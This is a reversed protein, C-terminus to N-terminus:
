LRAQNHKQIIRSIDEKIRGISTSSDYRKVLRGRTDILFKEFNGQIPGSRELWEQLNKHSDIQDLITFTTNYNSECWLRTLSDSLPNQQFQNTPVAIIRILSSDYLQNLNEMDELQPTYRCETAILVLLVLQNKYELGIELDHFSETM